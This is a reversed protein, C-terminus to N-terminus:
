VRTSVVCFQRKQGFSSDTDTRALVCRIATYGAKNSYIYVFIALFGRLVNEPKFRSFFINKYSTLLHVLKVMAPSPPRKLDKTNQGSSERSQSQAGERRYMSGTIRNGADYGMNCSADVTSEIDFSIVKFSNRYNLFLRSARSKFLFTCQHEKRQVLSNTRGDAPQATVGSKKLRFPM